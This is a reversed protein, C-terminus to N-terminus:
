KNFREALQQMYAQHLKKRMALIHNKKENLKQKKQNTSLGRKARKRAKAEQVRKRSGRLKKKMQEV